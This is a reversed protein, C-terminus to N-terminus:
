GLVGIVWYGEVIGLDGLVRRYYGLVGIVWYGEIIGKKRGEKTLEKAELCFTSL